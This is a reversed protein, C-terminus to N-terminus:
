VFQKAKVLLYLPDNEARQWMRYANNLPTGKSISEMHKQAWGGSRCHRRPGQVVYILGPLVVGSEFLGVFIMQLYFM